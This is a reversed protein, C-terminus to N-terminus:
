KVYARWKEIMSTMDDPLPSDFRIMEGTRPHIFGLTKAHLAQRPCLEFCNEIFQRYKAYITGKRIESGGYRADNFLPHGIHNMHVRIQHTRGTELRCQVVTVYGFRELVKYHTVAHKAREDDEPYVKFRLRDNPDRGIAGDVTGEDEKINGWVVAVYLREISHEFFQKALNLQAEDNKAVVLLGSTDKDIRHVLIGMREDEADPGQSIGLHFALANILTGNYNGHGPHVVMGAPKNVVLLDDDEYVIDLPIDEPLIEMGRRRYPMMFRIVDGPRVILNAKAVKEGVRVYGEKIACQIRHRSTDELHSAMFKDIRMPTQGPDVNLRFHEFM